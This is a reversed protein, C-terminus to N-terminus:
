RRVWGPFVNFWFISMIRTRALRWFTFRTDNRLKWAVMKWRKILQKAVSLGAIDPLVFLIICCCQDMIRNIYTNAEGMCVFIFHKRRLAAPFYVRFLNFNHVAFVKEKWQKLGTILLYRFPSVFVKRFAFSKFKSNLKSKQTKLKSRQILGKAKGPYRDLRAGTKWTTWPKMLTRWPTNLMRWHTSLMRWHTNLM